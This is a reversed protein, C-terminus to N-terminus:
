LCFGENFSRLDNVLNAQEAPAVEPAKTPATTEGALLSKHARDRLQWLKISMGISVILLAVLLIKQYRPIVAPAGGHPQPRLAM